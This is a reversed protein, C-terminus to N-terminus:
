FKEVLYASPVSILLFVTNACKNFKANEQFKINQSLDEKNITNYLCIQPLKKSTVKQNIIVNFFCVWLGWVNKGMGWSVGM